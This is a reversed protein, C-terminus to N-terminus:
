CSLRSFMGASIQFNRLRNRPSRKHWTPVTPSYCPAAATVEVQQSVDGITLTIDLRATSDVSVTIDNSVAKQFGAVEVEVKYIGPILQGKTYNGSENTTVEFKTNKNVDTISVKANPVAAGTKDTVTGVIGGFVQQAIGSGALGVLLLAAALVALWIRSPSKVM